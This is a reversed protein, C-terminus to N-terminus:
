ALMGETAVNDLEFKGHTTTDQLHSRGSCSHCTSEERKSVLILLEKGDTTILAVEMVLGSLWFLHMKPMKFNTRAFELPVVGKAGIVRLKYGKRQLRQIIM